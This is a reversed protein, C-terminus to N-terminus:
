KELRDLRQRTKQLASLFTAWSLAFIGSIFLFNKFTCGFCVYTIGVREVTWGYSKHSIRARTPARVALRSM